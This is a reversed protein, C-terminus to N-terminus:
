NPLKYQKGLPIAINDGKYKRDEEFSKMYGKVLGICREENIPGKEFYYTKTFPMSSFAVGIGLKGEQIKRLSLYLQPRGSEKEKIFELIEIKPFKEDYTGRKKLEFGFEEIITEINEM